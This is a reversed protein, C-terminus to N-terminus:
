TNINAAAKRQLAMLETIEESSLHRLMGDYTKYDTRGTVLGQYVTFVKDVTIEEKAEHGM